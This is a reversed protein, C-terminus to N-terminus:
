AVIRDPADVDFFVVGKCVSFTFVLAGFTHNNKLLETSKNHSEGLIRLSGNGNHQHVFNINIVEFPIQGKAV